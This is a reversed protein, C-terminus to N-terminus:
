IPLPTIYPPHFQTTFLWVLGMYMYTQQASAGPVSTLPRRADSQHYRSDSEAHQVSRRGSQAAQSLLGASFPHRTHHQQLRGFGDAASDADLAM